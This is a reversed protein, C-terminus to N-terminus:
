EATVTYVGNDDTAVYGDAVYKHFTGFDMGTNKFTGGKIILNGGTMEIIGDVTGTMNEDFVVTPIEYSGFKCSDFAVKGTPAYINTSGTIVIYGCNNSLVYDVNSFGRADLTVDKLTLNCYNQVLMRISGNAPMYTGDSLTVASGQLLQMGNTVTNPSGVPQAVTVTNGGFNVTLDNGAATKIGTIGTIDSEVNIIKEVNGAVDLGTLANAFSQASDASEEVPVVTYWVDGNSQKESIVTYGDAVWSLTGNSNPESYVRSPDYNVFTGGTVIFQANGENYLGDLCNLLYRSLWEAETRGNALWDSPMGSLNSEGAEPLVAEFFGGNITCVTSVAYDRVSSSSGLQVASTDGIYTGGNITLTGAGAFRNNHVVLAYAGAESADVTGEGNLTLNGGEVAMAYFINSNSSSTLHLTKGALDLAIDGSFEPVDAYGSISWTIDDNLVFSGSQSELDNLDAATDATNFEGNTQKAKITIDAEIYYGSGSHQYENGVSEYMGYFLIFRVTDADSTESKPELRFQSEERNMLEELEEISRHTFTGLATGDEAVAVFDFWYVESFDYGYRQNVDIEVKIDAPLTGNNYVEILKAGIYGPYLQSDNVIPDSSTKLNMGDAEFVFPTDSAEPVSVSMGGEGLDYAYGGIKLSGAQIRNGENTISDTFWAFTTGALAAASVALAAGCAVISRKIGKM